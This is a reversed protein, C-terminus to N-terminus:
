RSWADCDINNENFDSNFKRLVHLGLLIHSPMIVEEISNDYVYCLWRSSVVSKIECVVM